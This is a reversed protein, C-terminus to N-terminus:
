NPQEQQPLDLLLQPSSQPKFPLNSPQFFHYKERLLRVRNKIIDLYSKNVYSGSYLSQLPYFIRSFYKKIVSYFYKKERLHLVACHIQKAGFRVANSFVYELNELSDTLYPIIPMLLVNTNIENKALIKLAHLRGISPTAHPELVKRISENAMSISFFVEVSAVKNLAKLLPLDRLILTSKTTIMIPNKHKIFVKLIDPMLRYQRELPQYPDTVGCLNVISKKWSRKSFEQDLVEPLNTKVFLDGFFNKSPLYEHSYRAFCYACQHACGRYTNIDWNTAYAHKHFHLATKAHIEQIQM